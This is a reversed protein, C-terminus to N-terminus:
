AWTIFRGYCDWYSPTQPVELNTFVDMYRNPPHCVGAGCPCFLEQAGFFTRHVRGSREERREERGKERWGEKRKREKLFHFYKISYAYGGLNAQM